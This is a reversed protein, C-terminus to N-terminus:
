CPIGVARPIFEDRAIAPQDERRDPARQAIVVIDDVHECFDARIKRRVAESSEQSM